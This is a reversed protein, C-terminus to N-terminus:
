FADRYETHSCVKQVTAAGPCSYTTYKVEKWLFWDERCVVSATILHITSLLMGSGVAMRMRVPLLTYVMYIFFVTCWIAESATRPVAIVLTTISIVSFVAVVVCCVIFMHLQTLSSRQTVIQLVIVIVIMLGHVIGSVLSVGGGVYHFMILVVCIVIVLCLLVLLSHQNLKLFYRQFLWELHFDKFKKSKFIQAVATVNLCYNNNSPVEISEATEAESAHNRSEHRSYREVARQWASSKKKRHSVETLTSDSALKNSGQASNTASIKGSPKRDWGNATAEAIASQSQGIQPQSTITSSRSRDDKADPTVKNSKM